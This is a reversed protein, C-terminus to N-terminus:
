DPTISSASTLLECYEVWPDKVLASNVTKFIIRLLKYLLVTLQGREVNSVQNKAGKTHINEETHIVAEPINM